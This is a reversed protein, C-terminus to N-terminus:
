YEIEKLTLKELASKEGKKITEQLKTKRTNIKMNDSLFEGDCNLRVMVFDDCIWQYSARGRKSGTYSLRVEPENKRIYNQQAPTLKENQILTIRAFQVMEKLEEETLVRYSVGNVIIHEGCGAAFVALLVTILGCIFKKM